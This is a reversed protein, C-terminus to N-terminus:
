AQSVQSTLLRCGLTRHITDVLADAKMEVPPEEGEIRVWNHNGDCDKRRSIRRNDVRLRGYATTLHCTKPLIRCEMAIDAMLNAHKTHKPAGAEPSPPLDANTNFQPHSNELEQLLWEILTPSFVLRGALLGVQNHEPAHESKEKPAKAIYTQAMTAIVTAQAHLKVTKQSGAWSM